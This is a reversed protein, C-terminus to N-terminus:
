ILIMLIRFSSIIFIVKERCWKEINSKATVLIKAVDEVSLGSDRLAIARIKVEKPYSKRQTSGKNLKRRDNLHQTKEFASKMCVVSNREFLTNQIARNTVSGLRSSLSKGETDTAESHNDVDIESMSVDLSDISPTKV